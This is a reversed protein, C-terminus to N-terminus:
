TGESMMLISVCISSVLFFLVRAILLWFDDNQPRPDSEGTASAQEMEKGESYQHMDQKQKNPSNEAGYFKSGAM